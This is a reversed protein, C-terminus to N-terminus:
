VIVIEKSYFRGGSPRGKQQRSTKLIPTLGNIKLPDFIARSVPSSGAAEATVPRIKDLSKLLFYIRKGDSSRVQLSFLIQV